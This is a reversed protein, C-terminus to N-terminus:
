HLTPKKAFRVALDRLHEMIQLLKELPAHHLSEPTTLAMAQIIFRRQELDAEIRESPDLVRNLRAIERQDRLQRKQTERLGLLFKRSRAELQARTM